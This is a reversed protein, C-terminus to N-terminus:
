RQTAAAQEMAAVWRDDVNCVPITEMDFYSAYRAADASRWQELNVLGVYLQANASALLWQVGEGLYQRTLLDVARREKLGDPEPHAGFQM